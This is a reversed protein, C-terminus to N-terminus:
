KSITIPTVNMNNGNYVRVVYMGKDLTANINLMNSQPQNIVMHTRGLVDAIEIRDTRSGQLDITFNGNSPNPYVKVTNNAKETAAIGTAQKAVAVTLNQSNLDTINENPDIAQPEIVNLHLFHAFDDKGIVDGKVVLTMDGIKGKGSVAMQNMRSIALNGVGGNYDTNNFTMLDGPQVSLWSTSNTAVLRMTGALITTPDFQLQFSVGYTNDAPQTVTGLMVQIHATDGAHFTDKNAVLYLLPSSGSAMNVPGTKGSSKRGFNKTIVALDSTDVVGDGNCDAHKYNVDDKFSNSWDYAPQKKWKDSANPRATGTAGYAIGIKLVDKLSVKKDDNADGPLVPHQDVTINITDTYTKGDKKVKVWITTSADPCVRISAGKDGTSWSVDGGMGTSLTVCSGSSILTDKALIGDAYAQGAMFCAGLFLAIKTLNRMTINTLHMHYVKM